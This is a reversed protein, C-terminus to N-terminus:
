TTIPALGRAASAVCWLTFALSIWIFTPPLLLGVRPVVWLWWVALAIFSFLLDRHQRDSKPPWVLKRRNSRMQTSLRWFSVLVVLGGIGAILPIALYIAQYIRCVNPVEGAAWRIWSCVTDAIVYRGGANSNTLVVIGDGQDPLANYQGRWGLVDGSHLVLRMGSPLSEVVYGLGNDNNQSVPVPTVMLAVTQPQLVNRGAPEGNPGAMGAALWTAIDAATAYLGGAAEPYSRLETPKGSIQYGSALTTQLEPLWRYTSHQMGLPDLVADRIYDAFSQGTVEEVLLQLILYGANTYNGREGPRRNLHVPDNSEAGTLLKILPPPTEDILTGPFNWAAIGATHSLLRRVSVGRADFESPPIRWSALYQEAPADLEIKGDEVLRMVGWASISKSISAVQFVTQATVPTGVDENALGYGQTWVVEANHVLAVAVGPVRYKHLLGPQLTNMQQVFEDLTLPHTPEQNACASLLLLSILLLILKGITYRYAMEKM